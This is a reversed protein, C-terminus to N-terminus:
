DAGAPMKKSAFEELVAVMLDQLTKGELAAIAKLRRHLQLDLRLPFTVQEKTEKTNM